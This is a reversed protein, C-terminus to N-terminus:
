GGRCVIPPDEEKLDADSEARENWKAGDPQCLTMLDRTMKDWEGSPTAPEKTENSITSQLKTFSIQESTVITQNDNTPLIKTKIARDIIKVDTIVPKKYSPEQNEKDAIIENSSHRDESVASVDSYESIPTSTQRIENDGMDETKTKENDWNASAVKFSEDDRKGYFAIEKENM